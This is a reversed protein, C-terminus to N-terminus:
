LLINNNYYIIILNVYSDKSSTDPEEFYESYIKKFNLCNFDAISFKEIVSKEQNYSAL